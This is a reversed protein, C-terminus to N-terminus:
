GPDVSIRDTRVGLPGREVYTQVEVAGRTVTVAILEGPDGEAAVRYLDRNSYVPEGAVAVILDGQEIGAYHAASDRVIGTVQVRNPQGTAYLYRDFAQEGFTEIIASRASRISSQGRQAPDDRVDLLRRRHSSASFEMSMQELEITDVLSLLADADARSFGADLLQEVGPTGNVKQHQNAIPTGSTLARSELAALASALEDLRLAQARLHAELSAVNVQQPAVALGRHETSVPLGAPGTRTEAFSLVFTTAIAAAAGSAAAVLVQTIPRSATKEDATGARANGRTRQGIPASQSRMM